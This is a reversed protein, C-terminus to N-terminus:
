YDIIVIFQGTNLENNLAYSNLEIHKVWKLTKVRAIWENVSIINESNGIIKIRRDAFQLQQEATNTRESPNIGIERWHVEDPLLAALDDVLKAKNLGGDNGLEKLLSEKTKIQEELQQMGASSQTIQGAKEALAANSSNLWSFMVFNTLLLVFFIVLVIFGNIQLKRNEIQENLGADLEQVDAKVPDLSANLILQFAAAYSLVLREDIPESEIKLLFSVRAQANSTYNLWEKEENLLISHGDFALAHDYMNLQPLIHQIPFPGLCLMLSFFGQKRLALLWKDAEAKRIVSVFSSSGSMFNQVYFDDFRANLLVQSFSGANLTEIKEVQKHLVGRGILNVAVISKQILHESLEEVSSIDVIKKDFHLSNKEIRIACLTIQVSGEALFRISIGAVKDMRYYQELVKM